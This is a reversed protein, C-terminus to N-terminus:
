WPVIPDDDLDDYASLESKYNWVHINEDNKLSFLDYSSDLHEAQIGMWHALGHLMNSGDKHAKILTRDNRNSSIQILPVQFGQKVNANHHIYTDHQGQGHDSIYLLSFDTKEGNNSENIVDYIKELIQDTQKISTVYCSYKKGRPHNDFEPDIKEIRDCANNHSGFLHIVFLNNSEKARAKFQDEFISVIHWDSFSKTDTGALKTFYSYDSKKGLLSVPSDHRGLVGQNSIWYTKFNAKKALDIFTYQYDASNWDLKNTNLALMRTLSTVTTPAPSILGEVFVGNVKDLFPTTKKPYGYVSYYDMRSSEGLVLIYNKHKPVTSSIVWKSEVNMDILYGSIKSVSDITNKFFAYPYSHSSFEDRYKQSSICFIVNIIIIIIVSKIKLKNNKIIKKNVKYEIIISIILIMSLLFYKQPVISLYSISEETNTFVLSNVIQESPGGYMMGTPLYLSVIIILPFLVIWFTTRSLSLLYVFTLNILIIEVGQSQFTGISILYASFILSIGFLMYNFILKMSYTVHWVKM